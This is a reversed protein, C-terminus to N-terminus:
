FAELWAVRDPEPVAFENFFATAQRVKEETEVDLAAIAAMKNQLIEGFPVPPAFADDFGVLVNCLRSIHGECCMTVSEECEEFARKYLEVQLDADNTNKILIYLGDLARRYLWDNQERCYSRNYWQQMDNVIRVIRDWRGYTRPLWKAAFWDPARMPKANKSIELLKEMGANTQQSVVATHVNQADRAIAQLNNGRPAPAPVAALPPAVQLNPQPGRRGAIVWNWYVQFQWQQNFEPELVIPTLFMRRAVQYGEAVAHHVNNPAFLHDIVERWNMNRARYWDIMTQIREQQMRLIEAREERRQETRGHVECVLRNNEAQRGCWHTNGVWRHCTGARHHQEAVVVTLRRRTTVRRDYVGWHINCFRLHTAHENVEGNDARECREGNTKLGMCRPMKDTPPHSKDRPGLRETKRGLYFVSEYVISM